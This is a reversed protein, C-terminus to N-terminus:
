MINGLEYTGDNKKEAIANKATIIKEFHIERGSYKYYLEKIKAEDSIKSRYKFIFIREHEETNQRYYAKREELMLCHRLTFTLWNRLITTNEDKKNTPQLGFAMEYTTVQIPAIKLLTSELTKWM